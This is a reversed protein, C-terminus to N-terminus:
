FGALIPNEPKMIERMAITAFSGRNLTFSITNDKIKTDTCQIAANRFGGEVSLEQMEKIFFNKAEIQEDLMIKSIYYDFRTKKFYSYGMLPIALNQQPDKVYKGLIGHVDFCVDNQKPAFLDEGSEFAISLTKNFLYSQYSQVFMRRINIPIRRLAKLSDNSDLLEEVIKKEFDMKAPIESYIKSLNSHDAMKKRIETNEKSDYESTYSLLLSVAHDFDKQLIAKGVLHNVPRKSGFRQYGFFNLIRDYESFKSIDSNTNSVKITFNNGIMDKKSLPKKSYGVFTLSCKESDFNEIARLKQDACVYQETIASADKLGLAKLRLRIKKSIFELAHHTDIKQKRLKYVPYGDREKISDHSKKSILEDVIFDEPHTRIQGRCGEFKTTYVLLGIQSDIEPIM